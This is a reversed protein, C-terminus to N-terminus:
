LWRLCWFHAHSVATATSGRFTAGSSLHCGTSGRGLASGLPNLSSIWFLRCGCTGLLLLTSVVWLGSASSLTFVPCLRGKCHFIVWNYYSILGRLHSWLCLCSTALESSRLKVGLVQTTPPCFNEGSRCIHVHVCTCMYVRMCVCLMCM